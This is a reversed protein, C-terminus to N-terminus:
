CVAYMFFDGLTMAGSLIAHGAGLIMLIGIAGVIITAFAGVSSIGPMTTAINRFLTNAGRTFVLRESREARYAKVIRIGGLTEGLRGTVEATLKGRDRFRPRLRHHAAGAHCRWGRARAAAAARPPAPQDGPRDGVQLLLASRPRRAPERAAARAGAVPPRSPRVRPGAGGALCRAHHNEQPT